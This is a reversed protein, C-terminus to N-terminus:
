YEDWNRNYVPPELTPNELYYPHPDELKKPLPLESVTLDTKGPEVVRDTEEEHQDSDDLDAASDQTNVMQPLTAVNLKEAISEEAPQDISLEASLGEKESPDTNWIRYLETNKPFHNEFPIVTSGFKILGEGKNAWLLEDEEMNSLRFLDKLNAVDNQSQGLMICFESNSLMTSAQQSCLLETVNQTIGTVVAGFKRCWKWFEYLFQESYQDKLLLYIEDIYVYTPRGLEHNKKVRQQLTELIVKMSLTRISEDLDHIDFVLFKSSMDVNSQQSFLNSSGDVFPWLSQYINEAYPNEQARVAMRAAFDKLTPPLVSSDKKWAERYENLLELCVKGIQTREQAHLVGKGIMEAVLFEIFKSKRQIFDPDAPDGDFPNFHLESYSDVKLVAANAHRSIKNLEMAMYTYEGQPDIFFIDADPNSLMVSISELKASFSKGFGPKGLIFGSPNPLLRRNGLIMNHSTKNVGYYVPLVTDNQEKTTFPMLIACVSSILSRGMKDKPKGLPLVANFAAEQEFSMPLFKCMHTQGINEIDKRVANMANLDVSNTMIVVQVKFLNQNQKLIKELLAQADDYEATMSSPLIAAGGKASIKETAREIVGYMDDQQFRIHEIAKKRPVMSMHVSIMCNHEMTILEQFFEDSLNTPYESLYLCQCYRGDMMFYEPSVKFDISYPAIHNKTSDKFGLNEYDFLFKEGPKIAAYMSDLRDKGSMRHTECGMRALAREIDDSAKDLAVAAEEANPYRASVTFIKQSSVKNHGDELAQRRQDNMEFRLKDLGDHQLHILMEQDFKERDLIRNNITLQLDVRDAAAMNVFAMYDGFVKYKGDESLLQFNTDTFEISRSYLDDDLICLGDKLMMKYDFANQVSRIRRLEKKKEKRTQKQPSM